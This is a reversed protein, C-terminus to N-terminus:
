GQGMRGFPESNQCFNAIFIRFCEFNHTFESLRTKGPTRSSPSKRVDYSFLWSRRPLLLATAHIKVFQPDLGFPMMFCKATEAALNSDKFLIFCMYLLPMKNLFAIYVDISM